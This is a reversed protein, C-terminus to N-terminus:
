NKFKYYRYTKSANASSGVEKVEMTFTMKDVQSKTYSGFPIDLYYGINSPYGFLYAVASNNKTFLINITGESVVETLKSYKFGIQKEMGEISSYPEFVYMKDYDINILGSVNGSISCNESTIDKTLNQEIGRKNKSSISNYDLVVRLALLTIVIAIIVVIGANIKKMKVGLVKCKV